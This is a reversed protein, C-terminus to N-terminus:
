AKRMPKGTITGLASERSGGVLMLFVAVVCRRWEPEGDSLALLM